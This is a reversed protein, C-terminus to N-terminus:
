RCAELSEVIGCRVEACAHADVQPRPRCSRRPAPLIAQCRVSSRSQPVLHSSEAASGFAGHCRAWDIVLPANSYPDANSHRAFAWHAVALVPYARAYGPTGPRLLLPVHRNPSQSSVPAPTAARTATRDSASISSATGTDISKASDWGGQLAQVRQNGAMMQVFAQEAGMSQAWSLRARTLDTALGQRRHEPAVMLDYLGVLGGSLTARACAIGVGEHQILAYTAPTLTAAILRGFVGGDPPRESLRSWTNMWPGEAAKLLEVSSPGEVQEILSQTCVLTEADRRYDRAALASDLDHPTSQETVKFVCPQGLRAYASECYQIKEGIDITSAFLPAVSNARRGALGAEELSRINHM